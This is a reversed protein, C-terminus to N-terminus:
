RDDHFKIDWGDVDNISKGDKPQVDNSVIQMDQVEAEGLLHALLARIIPRMGGSLVVIPVNNAKCWLHFEKFKPDLQVNAILTSICQDFPITVSDMMEQFTQRFTRTSNLTDKNGQLRKEVGFGLNDTLFDNSDQLTITGDFDTFFIAKPQTRLAPLPGPMVM